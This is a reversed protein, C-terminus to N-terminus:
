DDTEGGSQDEIVHHVKRLLESPSFPKPLFPAGETIFGNGSAATESYGSTFLVPLPEQIARLREYLTGGSEGPMVIDTLLLAVEGVHCRLLKEAETPNGAVLVNYGHASLARQAISRVAEDDEVLLITESGHPLPASTSRATHQKPEEDTRPLYIRFTTGRGVESYVYINGGHQKVLGYVTALGLGTGEGVDKTTFFPEFIREMTAKDMGSGTDSVVLLVYEGPRTGAHIRVYDEDLTVNMTEIALRGGNPMADRANVSLNLLIQEIQGPDARVNGLGKGPKFTLDIDEGIIRELMKLFGGILENMNVVVPRLPQRRSFALLQRTLGAARRALSLIESLDSHDAGGLESQRLLMEVYGQIGTLINNFDHAIGGALKGVAELKQSTRLQEELARQSTIDRGYVNVYETDKVPVWVLNFIRGACTIESEHPRGLSRALRLQGQWAAPLPRGPEAQLERWTNRAAPNAYRILGDDGVRLIPHPNEEPFRSLQEITERNRRQETVDLMIGQLFLPRGRDDRVIAAEDHFWVTRGDGAIMRYEASFPESRELSRARDALVRERDDPHLHRRWIDPDRLYDGPTFGLMEEIQPSVYLTSAPDDLAGIYTIAPIREVLSRYRAESERLAQEACVRDTVDVHCGFIRIARGHEDRQCRARTYIWRYSGDKHRLRFELAYEDSRGEIYDKLAELTRDRDEPHLRKEWEEYADSIEHDEYGLQEKWEPSFYVRQAGLDWDWVGIKSSSLALQLRASLETIARESEKRETVDNFIAVIEGSPLRYVYNELWLSLRGDHYWSVPHHASEGTRWVRRFVDLLGLKEVAPFVRRASRGIVDARSTRTIREAALNFDRIIFDEGEDVAEYVAVGSGIRDFLHRYRRESEAASRRARWLATSERLTVGLLMTTLPLIVLAPLASKQLVDLAVTRPLAFACLLVSLQAILGFLLFGGASLPADVDKRILRAVMGSAAAIAIGVLGAVMGAGGLWLRYSATVAASVAAPIWGGLLGAMSVIVSRADLIIGPAIRCPNMMAAVGVAGFILGEILATRPSRRQWPRRILSYLFVLALLIAANDILAAFTMKLPRYRPSHINLGVAQTVRGSSAQCGWTERMRVYWRGRRLGYLM